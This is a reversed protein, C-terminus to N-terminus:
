GHKSLQIFQSLKSKIEQMKIEDDKKQGEYKLKVYFPNYPAWKTSLNHLFTLMEDKSKIRDLKALIFTSIERSQEPTFTNDIVGRLLTDTLQVYLQERLANVADMIDNM